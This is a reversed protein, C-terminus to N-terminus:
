SQAFDSRGSWCARIYRADAPKGFTPLFTPLYSPLFTPYTPLYAPLIPLCSALLDRMRDRLRRQANVIVSKESELALEVYDRVQMRRSWM